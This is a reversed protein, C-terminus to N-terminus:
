ESKKPATFRSRFAARDVQAGCLYVTNIRCTNTIDDLPNADLMVFDASKGSAVTYCALPAFRFLRPNWNM